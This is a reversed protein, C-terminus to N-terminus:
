GGVRCIATKSIFGKVQNKTFSGLWRFEVGKRRHSRSFSFDSKTAYNIKEVCPIEDAMLSLLGSENMEERTGEYICACGGESIDLIQVRRESPTYPSIVLLSNKCPYYRVSRRKRIM